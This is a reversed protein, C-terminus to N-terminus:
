WTVTYSFPASASAGFPENIVTIVACASGDVPSLTATGQGAPDTDFNLYQDTIV